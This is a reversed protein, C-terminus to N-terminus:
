GHGLGKGGDSCGPLSRVGVGIRRGIKVPFPIDVVKTIHNGFIHPFREATRFYTEAQAGRIDAFRLGHRVFQMIREAGAQLSM